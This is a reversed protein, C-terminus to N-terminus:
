RSMLILCQALSPICNIKLMHDNLKNALFLSEFGTTVYVVNKFFLGVFFLDVSVCSLFRVLFGGANVADNLHGRGFRFTCVM